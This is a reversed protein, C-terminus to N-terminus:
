NRKLHSDAQSVLACDRTYPPPLNDALGSPIRGASRWLPPTGRTDTATATPPRTGNDASHTGPFNALLSPGAAPPHKDVDYKPSPPFSREPCECEEALTTGLWTTPSWGSSRLWRAPICRMRPNGLYSVAQVISCLSRRAM